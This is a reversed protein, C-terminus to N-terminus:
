KISNEIIEKIENYFIRDKEDYSLREYRSLDAPMVDIALRHANILYM